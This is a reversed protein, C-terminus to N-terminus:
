GGEEHGSHGNGEKNRGNRYSTCDVTYNMSCLAHALHWETEFNGVIARTKSRLSENMPSILQLRDKGLKTGENRAGERQEQMSGQLVPIWGDNRQGEGQGEMSGQLVPLRCVVDLCLPAPCAGGDM